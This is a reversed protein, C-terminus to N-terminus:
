KKPFLKLCLFFTPPYEYNIEEPYYYWRSLITLDVQNSKILASQSSSEKTRELWLKTQKEKFNLPIIFEVKNDNWDEIDTILGLTTNVQFLKNEKFGFNYGEIKVKEGIITKTPKIKRIYLMKTLRQQYRLHESIKKSIIIIVFITLSFFVIIIVLYPFSKKLFLYVLYINKFFSKFDFLNIKIQTIEKKIKILLYNLHTLNFALYFKVLQPLLLSFIIFFVSQFLIHILKNKILEQAYFYALFYANLGYFILESKTLSRVSIFKFKNFKRLFLIIIFIISFYTTLYIRLNPNDIEVIFHPKSVEQFLFDAIHAGIFFFFFVVTFLYIVLNVLDPLLYFLLKTVKQYKKM